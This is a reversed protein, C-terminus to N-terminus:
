ERIVSSLCGELDSPLNGGFHDSSLDPQYDGDCFFGGGRQAQNRRVLNSRFEGQQSLFAVGGGNNRAINGVIMNSDLTPYSNLLLMGGGDQRAVNNSFTNEALTLTSNGAFVGGGQRAVNASIISRRILAWSEYLAIAGGDGPTNNGTFECNSIFVQSRYAYLAGGDFQPDGGQLTFGSIETLTDTEDFTVLRSGGVGALITQRPGAEGHLVIGSQPTSIVVSENYTGSAVLVTDFPEAADIAEQISRYTGPV